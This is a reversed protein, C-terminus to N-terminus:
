AVVAGLYKAASMVWPTTHWGDQWYTARARYQYTDPMIYYPGRMAMTTCKYQMWGGPPACTRYKHTISHYRWIQTEIRIYMAGAGACWLGAKGIVGYVIPGGVNAPAYGYYPSVVGLICVNGADSYIAQSIKTLADGMLSIPNPVTLAAAPEAQSAGLTSLAVVLAVISIVRKM